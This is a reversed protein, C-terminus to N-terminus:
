EKNKDYFYLPQPLPTGDGRLIYDSQINSIYIEEDM